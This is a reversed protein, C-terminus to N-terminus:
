RARYDPAGSRRWARFHQTLDTKPGTLRLDLEAVGVGAAAIPMALSKRQHLDLRLAKTM